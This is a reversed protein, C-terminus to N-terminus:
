YGRINRWWLTRRYKPAGLVPIGWLAHLQSRPPPCGLFIGRAQLAADRAMVRPCPPPEVSAISTDELLSHPSSIQTGVPPTAGNEQLNEMPKTKANPLEPIKLKDTHPSLMTPRLHRRDRGGLGREDNGNKQYTGQPKANQGLKHTLKRSVQCIRLKRWERCFQSSVHRWQWPRRASQPVRNSWGKTTLSKLKNEREWRGVTHRPWPCCDWHAIPVRPRQQRAGTLRSVQIKKHPHQTLVRTRRPSLSGPPHRSLTEPRIRPGGLNKPERQDHAKTFYPGTYPGPQPLKGIPM